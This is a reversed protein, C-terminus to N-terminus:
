IHPGPRDASFTISGPLFNNLELDPHLFTDKVTKQFLQTSFARGQLDHLRPVSLGVTHPSNQPQEPSVKTILQETVKKRMTNM